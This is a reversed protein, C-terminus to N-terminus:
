SSAVISHKNNDDFCETFLPYFQQQTLNEATKSVLPSPKRM